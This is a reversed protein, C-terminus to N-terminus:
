GLGGSGGGLLTSYKMNGSSPLLGGLYTPQSPTAQPKQGPTQASGFMPPVAPPPSSITIPAITPPSGFSM